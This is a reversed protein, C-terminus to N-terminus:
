RKQKKVREKMKELTEVIYHTESGPENKCEFDRVVVDMGYKAFENVIDESKYKKSIITNGYKKVIAIQVDTVFNDGPNEVKKIAKQKNRVGSVEYPRLPLDIGFKKLKEVSEGNGPVGSLWRHTSSASVGLHYALTRATFGHKEKYEKITMM